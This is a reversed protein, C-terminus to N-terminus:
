HVLYPISWPALKSHSKLRAHSKHRKRKAVTNLLPPRQFEKYAGQGGSTAVKCLGSCPPHGSLFTKPLDSRTHPAQHHEALPQVLSSQTTHATSSPYLGPLPPLFRCNMSPAILFFLFFSYIIWKLSLHSRLSRFISSDRHNM